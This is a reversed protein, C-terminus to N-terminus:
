ASDFHRGVRAFVIGGLLGVLFGSVLGSLLLVPLYYALQASHLLAVAVILQGINHLMGGACSVAVSSFLGSKRLALMGFLSLAFGGLSYALTMMNGFLLSVLLIRLLGILGAAGAGLADLAFVTVTNPLGLKVGPIGLNIPIMAEVYSLIMALALLMGYRSVRGSHIRM